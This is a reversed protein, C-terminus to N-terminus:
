AQKGGEVRPVHLVNVMGVVEDHTQTTREHVASGLHCCSSPALNRGALETVELRVQIVEHPVQSCV